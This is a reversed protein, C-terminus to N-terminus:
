AGVLDQAKEAAKRTRQHIRAQRDEVWCFSTM